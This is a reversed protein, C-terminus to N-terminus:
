LKVQNWKCFQGTSLQPGLMAMRKIFIVDGEMGHTKYGFHNNQRDSAEAFTVINDYPTDMVLILDGADIGGVEGNEHIMSSSEVVVLAANNWYSGM